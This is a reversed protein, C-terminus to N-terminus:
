AADLLRNILANVFAFRSGAFAKNTREASKRRGEELKGAIATLKAPAQDQWTEMILQVKELEDHDLWVGGCEDCRDIAIGSDTAYNMMQMAGQCAPCCLSRSAAGAPVGFMPEHNKLLQKLSEGFVAQRTKVIAGLEQPGVFEGGCKDCTEVTVGEYSVRRLGASCSPCNM